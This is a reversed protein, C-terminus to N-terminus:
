RKQVLTTKFKLKILVRRKGNYIFYPRAETSWLTMVFRIQMVCRVAVNSITPGKDEPQSDQNATRGQKYNYLQFANFRLSALMLKLWVGVFQEWPM